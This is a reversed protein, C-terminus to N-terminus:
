RQNQLINPSPATGLAILEDQTAVNQRAQNKAGAVTAARNLNMLRDSVQQQQPTTSIGLRSIQRRQVGQMTDATANATTEVRNVSEPLIDPNNLSTQNLLNLEVPKYQSEWNAFESAILQAMSDSANSSSQLPTYVGNNWTGPSGPVANVPSPTHSPREGLGAWHGALGGHGIDFADSWFGM